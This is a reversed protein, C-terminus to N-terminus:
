QWSDVSANYLTVTSSFLLRRYHDNKTISLDGLLYTKKNTYKNDKFTSRTLVFVKVALIRRGLTNDWYLDALLNVSM